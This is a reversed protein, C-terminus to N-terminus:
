RQSTDMNKPTYTRVSVGVVNRKFEVSGNYTHGCAHVLSFIFGAAVLSSLTFPMRSLFPFVNFCSAVVHDESGRESLYRRQFHLVDGGKPTRALVRIMTM